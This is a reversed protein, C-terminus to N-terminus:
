RPDNRENDASHSDSAIAQLKNETTSIISHFSIMLKRGFRMLIGSIWSLVAISDFATGREVNNLISEM